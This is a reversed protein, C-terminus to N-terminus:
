IQANDKVAEMKASELPRDVGRKFGAALKPRYGFISLGNVFPKYQFYTSIITM